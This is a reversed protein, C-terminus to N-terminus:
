AALPLPVVEAAPGDPLAPTVATAQLIRRKTAPCLPGVFIEHLGLLQEIPLRDLNQSLDQLWIDSDLWM